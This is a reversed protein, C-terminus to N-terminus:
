LVNRRKWHIIEYYKRSILAYRKSKDSPNEGGIRYHKKGFVFTFYGSGGDHVIGKYDVKDDLKYFKEDVAYRLFEKVDEIPLDHEYTTPELNTTDYIKLKGTTDITEIASKEGFGYSYEISFDEDDIYQYLKNSLYKDAVLTCCWLVVFVILTGKIYKM